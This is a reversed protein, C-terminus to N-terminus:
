NSEYFHENIKIIAKKGRSKVKVQIWKDFVPILDAIETDNTIFEDM